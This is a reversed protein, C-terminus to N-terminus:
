NPQRDSWLAHAKGALYLVESCGLAALMRAPVPPLSPSSVNLAVRRVYDVAVVAACVLLQTRGLSFYSAGNRRDGTLLGALPTTGLLLKWSIVAALSILVGLAGWRTLSEVQEM